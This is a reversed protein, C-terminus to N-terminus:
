GKIGVNGTHCKYIGMLTKALETRGAGMLGAVGLIEGEKLNFSINKVWQNSINDAKLVTDGLEHSVRPFQEDLKRGVM